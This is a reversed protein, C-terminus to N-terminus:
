NMALRECDAYVVLRGGGTAWRGHDYTCITHHVMWRGDNADLMKAYMMWWVHVLLLWYGASDVVLLGFMWCADDAGVM